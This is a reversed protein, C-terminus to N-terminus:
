SSSVQAQLDDPSVLRLGAVRQFHATNRTLLPLDHRLCIGATLIDPLGILEGRAALTRWVGAAAISAEADFPLIEVLALLTALLRQQRSSLTPTARVEYLSIATMGCDFHDLALQLATAHGRLYDIVVDADAAIQPTGVKVV